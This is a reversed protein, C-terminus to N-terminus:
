HRLWVSGKQFYKIRKRWSATRTRRVSPEAVAAAEAAEAAAAAIATGDDFEEEDDDEGETESM